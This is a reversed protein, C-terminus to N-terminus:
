NNSISISEMAWHFKRLEEVLWKRFDINGQYIFRAELKMSFKHSLGRQTPLSINWGVLPKHNSGHKREWM